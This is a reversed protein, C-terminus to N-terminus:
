HQTNEIAKNYAIIFIAGLNKHPPVYDDFREKSEGVFQKGFDKWLKIWQLDKGLRLNETITNIMAQNIVGTGVQKSSIIQATPCIQLVTHLSQYGGCSGLLILQASEALQEITSKLYYSHGRHFVVTPALQLSDLYTCLSKQAQADLDKLEDLPKNAYIVIPIKGKVSKVEVWEPKQIIQWNANKFSSLFTKFVNNGDKDGYFFQQIIIQKTLTDQLNAVPMTFVPAIGLLSAADMNNSSDSSLFITNLIHYINKEKVHHLSAAENLNAQIKQLILKKLAENTISAFSNAVDVADELTEKAALDSVFRQMLAQADATDMRKLFDDLTNFAAAMKIFKRYYDFHVMELLTDSRPIKLREFIRKYVGLYSSTYIEEEGLVCLYYLETPTLNNLIKFRVAEQKQDHLANIEDIFVSTAKDKLKESLALRVLPTDGQVLRETYEIQTKVLLKYYTEENELAKSVAAPTIEKKYLKDLFPFLMRGTGMKALQAITKVLPHPSQRIKLGLDNKVVAYNYLQEPHRFAYLAIVSDVFPRHLQTQVIKLINDPYRLCQKLALTNECDKKGINNEFAENSLLINGIELEHQAIIPDISQNHIQLQMCTKYATILDGLQVGKMLRVQYMAAFDLLVTELSRLWRYKDGESILTDLEIESQLNNVTRFLHHTVQQNIEDNNSAKFLSDATMNLHLVKQQAKDIKFHSLERMFPVKPMPIEPQATASMWLLTCVVLYINKM